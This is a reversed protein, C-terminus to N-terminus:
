EIDLGLYSEQEQECQGENGREVEGKGIASISISIIGARGPCRLRGRWRGDGDSSRATEVGPRVFGRLGGRWGLVKNACGM